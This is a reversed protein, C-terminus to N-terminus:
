AARWDGGAVNQQYQGVTPVVRSNAANLIAPAASAVQKQSIKEVKSQWNGNDDVYVRVDSTVKVHQNQAPTGGHMSVGLRGSPDRKLPMIAEPGAEGMLGVGNAFKFMTPTNVISNTFAGGKAFAQVGGTNFASGKASFLSFLGSLLGGFLGGGGGGSGIGSGASSASFLADVLQNEVKDIIKNLVNLAANGFSEWFSKGANLGSRLDSLFGKTADKVSQVASKAKEQAEALRNQEVTANAYGTALADIQAKLEPTIAKKERDAANLLEAAAKAKAQAFGYDEMLPNLAAQAATQAQIASTQERISRVASDFSKAAKGGSKAAAETAATLADANKVGGGFTTNLADELTSTSAETLDINARIETIKDGLGSKEIIDRTKSLVGSTNPNQVFDGIRPDSYGNAVANVPNTVGVAVQKKLDSGLGQLEAKQVLISAKQRKLELELLSKKANFEKETNALILATASAQAKGSNVIAEAYRKQLDELASIASAVGDLSSAQGALVNIRDSLGNAAGGSSILNAALPLLVGALIGAAIGAAGFGLTMDPIQIALAQIFNGTAQAQQAVQSLQLAVMRSQYAVNKSAAVNANAAVSHLRAAKEAASVASTEKTVGAAAAAAASGVGKSATALGESAAEAKKASATLKDLDNAGKQLPSTKVEFGLSAVDM